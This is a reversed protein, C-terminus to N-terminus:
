RYDENLGKSDYYLLFNMTTNLQFHSEIKIHFFRWSKFLKMYVCKACAHKIFSILWLFSDEKCCKKPILNLMGPIDEQEWYRQM